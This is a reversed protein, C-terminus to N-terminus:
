SPETVGIAELMQPNGELAIRAIALFDSFWDALADLAADRTKTATQADGKEKEQLQNAAIVATMDAEAAILKSRTIGYQGLAAMLEPATQVGAYFQQAQLLWGSLSRKRKGNLGLRVLAGPNDKLAIRAVKVLRMYSNEATARAKQLDATANAQDGYETQQHLQAQLADELLAKGQFLRQRDYGFEGLRARLNPNNLTNEIAVQANTLFEDIPYM